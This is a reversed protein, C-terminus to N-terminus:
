SANETVTVFCGSSDIAAGAAPGDCLVQIQDYDKTAVVQGGFGVGLADNATFAAVVEGMTTASGSQWGLQEFVGTDADRGQLRIRVSGPGVLGNFNVNGSIWYNMGSRMAVDVAALGGPPAFSGNCPVGTSDGSARWALGPTGPGVLLPLNSNSDTLFPGSPSLRLKFM